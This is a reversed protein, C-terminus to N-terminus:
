SEKGQAEPERPADTPPNPLPMWGRIYKQKVTWGMPWWVWTDYKSQDWSVVHFHCGSDTIWALFKTGDTPASEIPRWQPIQAILWLIESSHLEVYDNNDNEALRKLEEIREIDTM